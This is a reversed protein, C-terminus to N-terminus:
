KNRNLWQDILTRSISHKFPLFMEENDVLRNVEERTFWRAQELEEDMLDIKESVAKATFGIMLSQPFPWPQSGYYRVDNIKIGTEEFAERTVAQELTEGPEVFGAIVSFLKEPWSQQRGLLLKDEYTIACIVASDTRPFHQTQCEQNSCNRVFGADTAFTQHGCVGCHQHTNHWHEIAVAVNCIHAQEPPLNKLLQRLETLEFKDGLSSLREMASQSKLRFTFYDCSDYEGLYILHKDEIHPTIATLQQYDLWMPSAQNADVKTAISQKIVPLFRTEPKQLRQAIFQPRHRSDGHRDLPSTQFAFM